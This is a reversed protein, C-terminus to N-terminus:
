AQEDLLNPLPSTPSAPHVPPQGRLASLAGVSLGANRLNAQLEPLHQTIHERTDARESWFTTHITGEVLSVRAQVPGLGPLDLALNISWVSPNNDDQQPKEREIRLQILDIRDDARVPIELMQSRKGDDDTGSNALQHLRVRALGGEVQRLLEFVAQMLGTRANLSPQANTQPQLPAGALPPPATGTPMKVGPPTKVLKLLLVLLGVLDGKFDLPLSSPPQAASVAQALGAEMFVGSQSMAQRVGQASRIGEASPLHEMLSRVWAVVPAPLSLPPPQSSTVFTTSSSSPAGTLTPSRAVWALNALLPPLPTQRPLNHRVAQGVIDAGPLVNLIRLSAPAGASLVELKLRQGVGASAPLPQSLTVTVRTNALALLASQDRDQPRLVVAELVNGTQLPQLLTTPPPLRVSLGTPKGAGDLLRLVALEMLSTVELKLSQGSPLPVPSRTLLPIGGINVTAQGDRRSSVTTANIIQGVKWANIVAQPSQTFLAVPSPRKPSTIEM